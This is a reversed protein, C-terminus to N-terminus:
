QNLAGCVGGGREAGVQKLCLYVSAFAFVARTIEVRMAMVNEFSVNNIITLLCM